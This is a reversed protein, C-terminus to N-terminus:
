SIFLILLIHYKKFFLVNKEWIELRISLFCFMFSEWKGLRGKHRQRFCAIPASEMAVVFRNENETIKRCFNIRECCPWVAELSELLPNKRLEELKQHNSAIRSM